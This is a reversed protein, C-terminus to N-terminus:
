PVPPCGPTPSAAGVGAQCRGRAATGNGDGDGDGDLLAAYPGAPRGPRPTPATPPTRALCEAVLPATRRPRRGPRPDQVVAYMLAHQNTSDPVPLAAARHGRVGPRRGTRVDSAPTLARGLVQEPSMYGPSGVSAGTRTLGGGTSADVLKAVGFDILRPGEVTLLINSPKVDRHVLGAAHVAELARALGAALAGASAAPLPGQTAVLRQLPLGPVFETAVWPRQGDAGPEAAVVQAIGGARVLSAAEIERAFRVRFDPDETFGYRISKLAVREGGGGVALYVTGMGGEGLRALLRYPGIRAPDAQDLPWM